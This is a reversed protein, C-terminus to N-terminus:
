QVDTETYASKAPEYLFSLLVRKTCQWITKFISLRGEGGIRVMIPHDSTISLLSTTTGSYYM